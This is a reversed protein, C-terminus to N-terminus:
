SISCLNYDEAVLFKQLVGHLKWIKDRYIKAIEGSSVTTTTAKLQIMKTFQDVIVVIADLEKSKPLPEMIDISIEQWPKELSELLYLEGAKKMHQVKNQQYKVCEQVYKKINNKIGLWWYNRKLLELMRQQGSYGIDVQDHNEQLIQEQIRKNNSVYIKGDIYVIRDDEWAQGEDKELEKQVKQERTQNRRIEKLLTTEEVM